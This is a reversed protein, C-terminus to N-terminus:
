RPSDRRRTAAIMPCRATGPDASRPFRRRTHCGSAARWGSPAIRRKQGNTLSRQPATGSGMPSSTGGRAGGSASPIFSIEWATHRMQLPFSFMGSGPLGAKGARRHTHACPFPQPNGSFCARKNERFDGAKGKARSSEQRCFLKLRMNNTKGLQTIDGFVPGPGAPDQNPPGPASFAGPTRWSGRM